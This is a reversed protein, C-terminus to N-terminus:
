PVAHARAQTRAYILTYNHCMHANFQMTDSECILADNFHIQIDMQKLTINTYTHAAILQQRNYLSQISKSIRQIPNNKIQLHRKKNLEFARARTNKQKNIKKQNEEEEEEM